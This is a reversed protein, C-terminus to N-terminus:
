AHANAPPSTQWELGNKGVKLWRGQGGDIFNFQERQGREAVM